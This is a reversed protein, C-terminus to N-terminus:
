VRAKPRWSVGKSNHTPGTQECPRMMLCRDLVLTYTCFAWFACLWSALYLRTLGVAKHREVLRSLQVRIESTQSPMGISDEVRQMLANACLGYPHQHLKSSLPAHLGYSWWFSLCDKTGGLQGCKVSFSHAHM